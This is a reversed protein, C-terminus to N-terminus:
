KMGQVPVGVGVGMQGQPGNPQQANMQIQAYQAQMQNQYQPNMQGQMQQPQINQQGEQEHQNPNFQQQYVPPVPTLNGMKQQQQQQQQVVQPNGEVQPQGGAQNPDVPANTQPNIMILQGNQGQILQYQGPPTNSYSIMMQSGDATQIVPASQQITYYQVQQQGNGNQPMNAQYIMGNPQQILQQGQQNMQQNYDNMMNKNNGMYGNPGRNNNFKKNQMRDRNDGRYDGRNDRRNDYPKNRFNNEMNNHMGGNNGYRNQM